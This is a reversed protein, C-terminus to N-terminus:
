LFYSKKNVLGKQALIITENETKSNPVLNKLNNGKDHIFINQMEDKFKKEVM